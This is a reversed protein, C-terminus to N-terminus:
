QPKEEDALALVMRLGKIEGRRVADAAMDHDHGTSELENRLEHIRERCAKEVVRWSEESTWITM